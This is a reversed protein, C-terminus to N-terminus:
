WCFFDYSHLESAGYNIIRDLYRNSQLLNLEVFVSKLEELRKAFKTGTGKILPLIFQLIAYDLAVLDGDINM